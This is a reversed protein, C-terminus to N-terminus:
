EVDGGLEIETSLLVSLCVCVHKNENLITESDLGQLCNCLCSFTSIRM